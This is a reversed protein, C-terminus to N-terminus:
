GKRYREQEAPPVQAWLQLVFAKDWRPEPASERPLLGFPETAWGQYLLAGAVKVPIGLLTAVENLTLLPALCRPVENRAAWRKQLWTFGKGTVLTKPSVHPGSNGEYTQEIVRFHGADLYAQYPLNSGPLLIGAERLWRFLRNQGTGLVKAVEAISRADGSLAVADHFAAKPKLTQIQGAQAEAHDALTAMTRLAETYTRPVALELGAVQYLEPRPVLPVAYAGTKRIAPLVEGAIWKQFPLAAPKDSRGLFFYLGQESLVAMDQADGRLTVVSTVGRWEEPVHAIRAAGNWAYGLAEAVDKAVLWTEGDKVITRIPSRGEFSFTSLLDAM